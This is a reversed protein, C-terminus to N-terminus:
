AGTVGRDLNETSNTKASGDTTLSGEKEGNAAIEGSGDSYKIALGRDSSIDDEDGMLAPPRQRMAKAKALSVTKEKYTSTVQATDDRDITAKMLAAMWLRGQQVNDVAFYHVTPKTFNVAKSLGSRPPVLKFIFTGAADGKGPDPANQANASATTQIHANHPSTPSSTAGTVTAHLGTIRDNNAPLVRHFSIDILGKEETDDELYYYSLRRGRLVFLRTKWTTMLNSSKKKMWGSYDCGDMQVEPSKKELGRLYASTSKKGRRRPAASMIPTHRGSSGAGKLLSSDDMDISKSTMSPTTSGTGARSPSQLPSEKISSPVKGFQPSLASAKEDGTIADSIARLGTVRSRAVPNRGQLAPSAAPRDSLSKESAANPSATVADISPSHSYDLKTVTPSSTPSAQRWSKGVQPTSTARFGPKRTSYYVQAATSNSANPSDVLSEASARHRFAGSLRRTNFGDSPARSHAPSDRKRLVNRAKRNDAENGSFYGRDLDLSNVVTMNVEHPFAAFSDVSPSLQQGALTTKSDSPSQLTSGMTWSRDFSGHKKTHSAAPAAGATAQSGYDPDASTTSQDVSSHRRDHQLSRVSAASPRYEHGHKSSDIVPLASLSETQHPQQHSPGSPSRQLQQRSPVRSNSGEMLSPIRPLVTGVSTSRSRTSEDFSGEIPSHEASFRPVVRSIRVEEQIAKVKQWLALRRGISGLDFEKLMLSGQDMGLLVDGSIEQERFVQCHHPEVGLDELYEAVRDPTWARVEKESLMGSEEEDTEHGTIYSLRRMADPDTSEDDNHYGNREPKLLSHRPTSMDTIHEEIVSLTENM